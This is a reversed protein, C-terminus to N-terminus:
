TMSPLTASPGPVRARCRGSRCSRGAVFSTTFRAPSSFTSNEATLTVAIDNGAYFPALSGGTIQFKFDFQDTTTGTENYGFAIVEGTLLPAAYNNAGLTATANVVLDHGPQRGILVGTNSVQIRISVNPVPAVPNSITGFVGMSTEISSTNSDVAFIQTAADYRAPSSAFPPNGILPRNTTIRPYGPNVGLLQASAPISFGAAVAGLVVLPAVKFM